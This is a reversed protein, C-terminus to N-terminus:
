VSKRDSRPRLEKARQLAASGRAAARRPGLDAHGEAEDGEPEAVRLLRRFAEGGRKTVVGVRAQGPGGLAKPAARRGVGSGVALGADPGPASDLAFAAWGGSGVGDVSERGRTENTRGCPTFSRATVRSPESRAASLRECRTGTSGPFCVTWASPVM